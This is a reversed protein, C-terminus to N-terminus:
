KGPSRQGAQPEVALPSTPFTPRLLLGLGFAVADGAGTVLRTLLTVGLAVGAGYVPTLGALLIADRVGLGAPAGPAVFGAVWALAFVGVVVLPERAAAGFVSGAILLVIAGLIVQNVCGIVFCALLQPAGPTKVERLWPLRARVRDPLRRLIGMAALPSLLAILALAALLARSPGLESGALGFRGALALASAAVLLSALISWAIEFALTTIVRSPSYGARTAIAVRGLQHAVNGPIYKGFQAVAFIPLSVRARSREGVARLYIEWGVGALLVVLLCALLAGLLGVATSTGWQIPPLASANRWAFRVFYAVSVVIAALGLLRYLRGAWGVEQKM